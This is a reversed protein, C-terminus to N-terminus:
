RGPRRPTATTAQQGRPHRGDPPDRQGRHEVVRAPDDALERDRARGLGVLEVEEARQRGLDVVGSTGGGGAPRRAADAELDQPQPQGPQGDGTRPRAVDQRRHCGVEVERGLGEREHREPLDVEPHDRGVQRPDVVRAVEAVLQPDRGLVLARQEVPDHGGALRVAQPQEPHPRQHREPELLAVPRPEALVARDVRREFAPM